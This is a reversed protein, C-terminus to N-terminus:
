GFASPAHGRPTRRWRPAGRVLSSILYLLIIGISATESFSSPPARVGAPDPPRIALRM